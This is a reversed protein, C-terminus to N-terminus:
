PGVGEIPYEPWDEPHDATTDVGLVDSAANIADRAYAIHSEPHLHAQNWPWAVSHASTEDGESYHEMCADWQLHRVAWTLHTLVDRVQDDTLPFVADPVDPVTAGM